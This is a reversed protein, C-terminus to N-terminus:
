ILQFVQRIPLSRGVINEFGLHTGLERRLYQNELALRQMDLANRIVIKVEEMNCPKLIYHFAGQRMAAVASEITGFATLIIVITNPSRGKIERLLQEGSLGPMKLDTIVVNPSVQDFVELAKIGDEATFVDHNEESLVMSLIKLFRTEDDVALITAM